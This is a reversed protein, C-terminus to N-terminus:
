SAEKQQRRLDDRLLDGLSTVEKMKRELGVSELMRRLNAAVRSYQELQLDTAGNEAFKLERQELETITVACRRIIARKAESLTDAGGQDQTFLAVLDRV